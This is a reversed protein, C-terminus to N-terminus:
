TNRFDELDSSFFKKAQTQISQKHAKDLHENQFFPKIRKKM